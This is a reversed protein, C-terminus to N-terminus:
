VWALSPNTGVDESHSLLTMYKTYPILGVDSWCIQKASSHVARLIMYWGDEIPPPTNQADVKYCVRLTSFRGTIESSTTAVSPTVTTTSLYTTSVLCIKSIITSPHTCKAKLVPWSRANHPCNRTSCPSHLPWQPHRPYYAHLLVCILFVPTNVVNCIYVDTTM